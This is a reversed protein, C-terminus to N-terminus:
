NNSYKLSKTVSETSKSFTERKCYSCLDLAMEVKIMLVRIIGIIWIVTIFIQTTWINM